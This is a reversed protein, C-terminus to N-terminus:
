RLAGGQRMIQTELHFRLPACALDVIAAAGITPSSSPSPSSSSVHGMVFSTKRSGTSHTPSPMVYSRTAAVRHNLECLVEGIVPSRRSTGLPTVSTSLWTTRLCAAASSSRRGSRAGLPIHCAPGSAAGFSPASPASVGEAGGSDDDKSKRADDDDTDRGGDSSAVAGGVSNDDAMRVPDCRPPMRANVSVFRVYGHGSRSPRHSFTPTADPAVNTADLASPEKSMDPAELEDETDM